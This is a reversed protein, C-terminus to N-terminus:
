AVECIESLARKLEETEELTLKRGARLLEKIDKRTDEVRGFLMKEFAEIEDTNVNDAFGESVAFILLVQKWDDLPKNRGQKLADMMRKGSDLTKRTAEDVDAGFQSFGALERYQALKM